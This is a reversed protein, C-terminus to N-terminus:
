AKHAKRIQKVCAIGSLLAGLSRRGAPMVTSGVNYLGDIAGVRYGPRQAPDDGVVPSPISPFGVLAPYDEPLLVKKWL